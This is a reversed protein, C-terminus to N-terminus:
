RHANTMAERIHPPQLDGRFHSEQSLIAPPIHSLRERQSPATTEPRRSLVMGRTMILTQKCETCVLQDQKLVILVTIGSRIHQRIRGDPM